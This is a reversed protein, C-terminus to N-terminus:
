HDMWCLCEGAIEGDRGRERERQASWVKGKESKQKGGDGDGRAYIHFALLRHSLERWSFSTYPTFLAAAAAAAWRFAAVRRRRCLLHLISSSIAVSFAEFTVGAGAHSFSLSLSFAVFSLLPFLSPFMILPPIVM